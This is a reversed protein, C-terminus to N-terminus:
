SIMIMLSYYSEHLMLCHQTLFSDSYMSLFKTGTHRVQGASHDLFQNQNCTMVKRQVPLWGIKVPTLYSLQAQEKRPAQMIHAREWSGRRQPPSFFGTQLSEQSGLSSECLSPSGCSSSGRSFSPIGQQRWAHGSPQKNLGPISTTRDNFAPVQDHVPDILLDSQMRQLHELWNDLQGGEIASQPRPTRPPRTICPLVEGESILSEWYSEDGSRRWSPTRRLHAAPRRLTMERCSLYGSAVRLNWGVIFSRYLQPILSFGRTWSSKKGHPVGSICQLSYTVVLICSMM